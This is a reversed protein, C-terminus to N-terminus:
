AYRGGEQNGNRKGSVVALKGGNSALLKQSRANKHGMSSERCQVSSSHGDQHLAKRNGPLAGGDTGYGKDVGNIMSQLMISETAEPLEPQGEVYSTIEVTGNEGCRVPPLGFPVQEEALSTELNVSGRAPAM